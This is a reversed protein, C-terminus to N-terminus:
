KVPQSPPVRLIKVLEGSMDVEGICEFSALLDDGGSSDFKWTQVLYGGRFDPHVRIRLLEEVSHVRVMPLEASYATTAGEGWGFAMLIVENPEARQRILNGIRIHDDAWQSYDPQGYGHIVWGSQAALLLVAVWRLATGVTGAAWRKLVCMTGLAVPGAFYFTWYEHEM